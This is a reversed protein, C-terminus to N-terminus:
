YKLIIGFDILMSNIKLPEQSNTIIPSLYTDLTNNSQQWIQLRHSLKSSISFRDGIKYELLLSAAGNLEFRDVDYLAVTENESVVYSPNKLVTPDISNIIDMSPFYLNDPLKYAEVDTLERSGGKYILRGPLIDAGLYISLGSINIKKSLGLSVILRRYDAYEQINGSKTSVTTFNLEENLELVHGRSTSVYSIPDNNVFNIDNSVIKSTIRKSTMELGGNWYLNATGIPKYLTIALNTSNTNSSSFDSNSFNSGFLKGGSFRLFLSPMNISSTRPKHGSVHEYVPESTMVVAGKAPSMSTVLQIPKALDNSIKSIKYTNTELDIEVFMDFKVHQGDKFFIREGNIAIKSYVIKQIALHGIFQNRDADSQLSILGAYDITVDLGYDGFSEQVINVYEDPYLEEYSLHLDSYVRADEKFLDLFSNTNVDSFTGEENQFSSYEIYEKLLQTLKKGIISIENESLVSSYEAHDMEIVIRRAQSKAQLFSLCGFM